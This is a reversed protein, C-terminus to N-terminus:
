IEYLAANQAVVHVEMKEMKKKQIVELLEEMISRSYANKTNKRKKKMSTDHFNDM